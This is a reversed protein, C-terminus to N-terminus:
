VQPVPLRLGAVDEPAGLFRALPDEAVDIWEHPVGNRDLFDRYDQVHASGRYGVVYVDGELSESSPGAVM